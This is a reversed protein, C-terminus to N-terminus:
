PRDPRRGVPGAGPSSLRAVGAKLRRGVIVQTVITSVLTAFLLAWIPHEPWIVHGLGM